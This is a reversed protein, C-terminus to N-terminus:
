SRIEFFGKRSPLNGLRTQNFVRSFKDVLPTTAPKNRSYIDRLESWDIRRSFFGKQGEAPKYRQVGDDGVQDTGEAGRSDDSRVDKLMALTDERLKDIIQKRRKPENAYEEAAKNVLNSLDGTYHVERNFDHLLRELREAQTKNEGTNITNHGSLIDAKKDSSVAKFANLKGTLERKLSAVLEGREVDTSREDPEADGFLVPGTNNKVKPAHAMNAAMEEVTSDGITRGKEDEWKEIRRAMKNQDDHDNLHKAIALARKQDYRGETVKQFLPESLKSLIDADRAIAGKVSVGEKQLDELTSGTDRMFKAADMATGNGGAINIVAGKARAKRSTLADIYHVQVHGKYGSRRALDHRHHGNVVYTKNEQPDHWVHITGALEPNYQVGDFQDTVGAANNTNLKYQFKSPDVHMDEVRLLGPGVKRGDSLTKPEYGSSKPAPSNDFLSPKGTPKQKAKSWVNAKEKKLSFPADAGQSQKRPPLHGVNEGTLNKPGATITGSGSIKVHTGKHGEGSGITIWKQPGSDNSYRDRCGGRSFLGKQKQQPLTIRKSFEEEFMGFLDKQGELSQPQKQIADDVAPTYTGAPRPDWARQVQASKRPKPPSESVSSAKKQASSYGKLRFHGHSDRPHETESFLLSYRDLASSFLDCLSTSMSNRDRQTQGTEGDNKKVSDSSASISPNATHSNSRLTKSTLSYPDPLGPLMNRAALTKWMTKMALEERGTRIAAVYYITGNFRKTILVGPIGDKSKGGDEVSDYNQLIEPIKLYDERTLASQGRAAESKENGHEKNAHIITFNDVTMGFGNIDIGTAKKVDAALQDSVEGLWISKKVNSPKGLAEDYLEGLEKAGGESMGSPLDLKSGQPSRRGVGQKSWKGSEDRPQEEWKAYRDVPMARSFHQNLHQFLDSILM